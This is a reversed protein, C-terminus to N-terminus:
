PCWSSERDKVTENVGKHLSPCYCSYKDKLHFYVLKEHNVHSSLSIFLLAALCPSERVACPDTVFHGLSVWTGFVKSLHVATEKCSPVENEDITGDEHVEKRM